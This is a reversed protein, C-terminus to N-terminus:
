RGSVQYRKYVRSGAAAFICACILYLVPVAKWSVFSQGFVTLTRIDFIKWINLFSMPLWDWIQSLIRYQEPISCITGAMVAGVSVALTAMGNHLLESLVMVFIGFLIATVLLEGYAILCAEGITLPYPCMNRSPFLQFAAGFGETGYIGFSLAATLGAMFLSAAVSISVGALIKALYVEKRGRRCCLILQDSRRMHEEPFVGSLCVATLLLMLLGLMKLKRLLVAYGEHYLWTVPEDTQAGKEEWFAKERETLFFQGCYERQLEEKLAYLEEEDAEWDMLADKDMGSWRRVTNFITSYPRAYTQYEDTLTYRGDATQPIKGYGEAMEELLEQGIKRGSLQKEYGSDVLFMHYYTDVIEGDVYYSGMLDSLVATAALAMCLLFTVWALKKKLIKKLEYQYLVGIQKMKGRMGGRM